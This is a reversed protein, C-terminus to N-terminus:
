QARTAAPIGLRRRCHTLADRLLFNILTPSAEMQRAAERQTHGQLQTMEFIRRTREPLELLAKHVQELMARHIVAAEPSPKSCLLVHAQEEGVSHCNEWQQRRLRDISLNRVMRYLYGLTHAVPQDVPQERLKLYIDQAVDDAQQRCGLIAHARDILAQRNEFFTKLLDPNNKTGHTKM